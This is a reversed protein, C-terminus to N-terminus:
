QGDPHVAAPAMSMVASQATRVPVCQTVSSAM